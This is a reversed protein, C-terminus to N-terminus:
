LKGSGSGETFGLNIGDTQVTSGFLAWLVQYDVVSASTAVWDFHQNVSYVDQTGLILSPAAMAQLMPCAMLFSLALLRLFSM